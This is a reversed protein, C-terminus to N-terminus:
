EFHSSTRTASSNGAAAHLAPLTPLLERFMDTLVGYPDDDLHVLGFNTAEGDAQAPTLVRSAPPRRLTDGSRQRLVVLCVCLLHTRRPCCLIIILACWALARSTWGRSSTGAWRRMRM